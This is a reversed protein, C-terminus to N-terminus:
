GAAALNQRGFGPRSLVDARDTGLVAGSKDSRDRPPTTPKIFENSTGGGVGFGDRHALAAAHPLDVHRDRKGKKCGVQDLRGDVTSQRVSHSDGAQAIQGGLPRALSVHKPKLFLWENWGRRQRHDSQAPFRFELALSLSAM